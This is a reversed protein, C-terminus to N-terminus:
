IRRGFGEKREHKPLMAAELDVRLWYVGGACKKGAPLEGGDVARLFASESMGCYYAAMKAKMRYPTFHFLPATV